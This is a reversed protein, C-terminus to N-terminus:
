RMPIYTRRCPTLQPSTLAKPAADFLMIALEDDPEPARPHVLPSRPSYLPMATARPNRLKLFTGTGVRCTAIM